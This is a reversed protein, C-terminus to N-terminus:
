LSLIKFIDGLRKIVKRVRRGKAAMYESKILFVDVGVKKASLYDYRYSDGVMLAKSKPIHKKKLIRVILEGKGEPYDRSSYFEDFLRELKLHRVKGKLLMDAEKPPHPHTSLLILIIGLKKLKKLTTLTSPTLILHELYKDGIKKDSYIWHPVIKRKTNKPYWITGDGDFFIIKKTNV